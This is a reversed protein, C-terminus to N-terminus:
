SSKRLSGRTQKRDNVLIPVEEMHSNESLLQIHKKFYVHRYHLFDSRGEFLEILEKPSLVRRVLDDIRAGSFHMEVETGVTLSKVRLVSRFLFM